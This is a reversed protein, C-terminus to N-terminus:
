DPLVTLKKATLLLNSFAQTALAKQCDVQSNAFPVPRPTSNCEVTLRTLV